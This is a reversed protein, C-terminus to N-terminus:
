TATKEEREGPVYNSLANQTKDDNKDILKRVSENMVSKDARLSSCLVLWLQIKLTQPGKPERIVHLM